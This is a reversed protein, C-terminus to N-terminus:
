EVSSNEENNIDQKLPLWGGLYNESPNPIIKPTNVRKLKLIGSKIKNAQRPSLDGDKAIQQVNSELTDKVDDGGRDIENIDM